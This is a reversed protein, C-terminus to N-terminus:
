RTVDGIMRLETRKLPSPSNAESNVGPRTDPTTKQIQFQQQPPRDAVAIPKEPRHHPHQPM